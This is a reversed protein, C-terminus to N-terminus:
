SPSALLSREPLGASPLVPGTVPRSWSHPELVQVEEDELLAGAPISLRQGHPRRCRHHMAPPVRGCPTSAVALPSTTAQRSPANMM